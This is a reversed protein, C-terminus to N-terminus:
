IRSVEFQEIAQEATAGAHIKTAVYCEEEWEALAEGILKESDLYGRATDIYNVGKGLAYHILEIIATRNVDGYFRGTFAGGGIGLPSVQFNTRGLRHYNM